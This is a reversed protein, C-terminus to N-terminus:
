WIIEVTNWVVSLEKRYPKLINELARDRVWETEWGPWRMAKYYEWYEPYCGSLLINRPDFDSHTMVAGRGTMVEPIIDCTFNVWDYPQMTKLAKVIGQNLEVEYVFPEYGGRDNDFYHDNCWSGDVSGIFDGKIERLQGVYGRLQQIVSEKEADSYADWAVSLNEGPIFEMVICVLGSEGEDTYTDYMKPVPITTRAAIFKMTEAEALHDSQGSKVITESDIKVFNGFREAGALEEKSVIRAM